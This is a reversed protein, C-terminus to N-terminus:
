ELVGELENELVDGPVDELVDGPVDELVDELVDGSVDELVDGLGVSAALEAGALLETRLLALDAPEVVVVAAAVATWKEVVAIGLVELLPPYGGGGPTTDCDCCCDRPPGCTPGIEEPLIGAMGDERPPGTGWCGRSEAWGGCGCRPGIARMLDSGNSGVGTDLIIAM